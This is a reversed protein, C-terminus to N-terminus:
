RTVSNVRTPSELLTGDVFKDIGRIMETLPISSAPQDAPAVVLDYQVRYPLWERMGQVTTFFGFVPTQCASAFHVISTDPTFVCLAGDVLSAVQLLTAKGKEPFVICKRFEQGTRRVATAMEGDDPAVILVTRFIKRESLHSAIGKAQSVSIRRDADKASLNLLVYPLPSEEAAVRRKMRNRVLFDDVVKKSVEDVFLEFRLDEPRLEIGFAEKIYAALSEVMHGSFRPLKVLRDFYFQYKVDAHGIKLASPALLRALLAVSTTRNFVFSLVVDYQQRRARRLERFFQVPNPGLVYVEDVFPNNSLLEVNSRSALVGLHLDPRLRKLNRFIPTTIIMDGIRDHRLILLNRVTSLDIPSDLVRNRLILRFFPYVLGKRFARELLELFRKMM